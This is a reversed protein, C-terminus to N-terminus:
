GPQPSEALPPADERDIEMAICVAQNIFPSLRKLTMIDTMAILQKLTLAPDDTLLMSWILTCYEKLKLKDPNVDGKLWSKGTAEEFAIMANMDLKLNREKDLTVKVFPKVQNM